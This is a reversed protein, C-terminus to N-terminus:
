WAEETADLRAGPRVHTGAGYAFERFSFEILSKLSSAMDLFADARKLKWQQRELSVM